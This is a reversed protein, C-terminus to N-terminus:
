ENRLVKEERGEEGRDSKRDAQGIVLNAREGANMGSGAAHGLGIGIFPDLHIYAVKKNTRKRQWIPHRDHTTCNTKKFKYNPRLGTTSTRNNYPSLVSYM